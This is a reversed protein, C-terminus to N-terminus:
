NLDLPKLAEILPDIHNEYHKWRNLSKTYIAQRVQSHSATPIYRDSEHFKLCSDEWELEMYNLLNKIEDETNCVLNEYSIEYIDINLIRIWHDMLKAYGLYYHGLDSLSNAYEHKEHFDQFYISLCTDIPNRRCHIIKTNPFLQSILGLYLFNHPMKDTVYSATPSISELKKYYQTAFADLTNSTLLECNLPYNKPVEPQSQITHAIKGVNNLEGAGIVTSHSQLIQEVLSTGSRPMGVIFASVKKNINSKINRAFYQYNFTDIISNIFLEEGTKNYTKPRSKNAQEYHNFAKDYLGLKNYVAGIEYRMSERTKDPTDPISILKEMYDIASDCKNSKACVALFVMGLGPHHQIGKDLLPKILKYADIANGSKEFFNAKCVLIDVDGPWRKIAKNLTDEANELEGATIQSTALNVYAERFSKNLSIATKLHKIAEHYSGLCHLTFGLRHHTEARNPDKALANTYYNIATEFKRRSQYIEGLGHIAEINNPNVSLINTLLKEADEDKGQHLLVGAMELKLDQNNPQIDLAKSFSSGADNYLGAEKQAKGLGCLAVFTGPQLDLTKTFYKIAQTYNKRQGYIAGLMYLCEPDNPNKKRAKEYLTKAKDMSGKNFFVLAKSKINDQM